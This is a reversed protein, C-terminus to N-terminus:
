WNRVLFVVTVAFSFVPGWVALYDRAMPKRRISVSIVDYNNVTISRLEQNLPKDFELVYQRPELNTNVPNIIVEARRKIWRFQADTNFGGRNGGVWGAYSILELLTTGKPVLYTGSNIDGWVFVTDAVQFQSEIRIYGTSGQPLMGTQAFLEPTPSFLLFGVLVALIQFNFNIKRPARTTEM